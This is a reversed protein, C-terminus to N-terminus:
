YVFEPLPEYDPDEVEYWGETEYVDLVAYKEVGDKTILNGESAIIRFMEEYEVGDAPKIPSITVTGNERSYKYLPKIIM